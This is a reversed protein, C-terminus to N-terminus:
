CTCGRRASSMPYYEAEEVPQISYYINEKAEKIQQALEKVTPSQFIKRLPLEIQFKQHIKSVLTTAKLSHGGLDFFNDNIGVQNVKLVERWIAVLRQELDNTPAEYETGTNLNGDPEPLAKKDIKGNLTLPLKELQIFYTPIMYDPLEKLLYERLEM